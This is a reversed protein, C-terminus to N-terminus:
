LLSDYNESFDIKKYINEIKLINEKLDPSKNRFNKLLELQNKAKIKIINKAIELM